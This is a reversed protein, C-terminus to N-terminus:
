CKNLVAAEDQWAYRRTRWSGQTKRWRGHGSATEDAKEYAGFQKVLRNVEAIDVGAGQAIRKKRSPNMLDPNRREEATMSLIIAEVRGMTKENEDLDLGKLQGMGPMMSMISAMGGMKKIQNMQDLFDNYDFEAKKIKRGLEKAKEEDIVASAKDIILFSM